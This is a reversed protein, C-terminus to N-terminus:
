ANGYKMISEIYKGIIDFELNVKTGIRYAHFITHAYTFPIIAITCENKKTLRAVTLSTGDVSISGVAILYKRYSSPFRV